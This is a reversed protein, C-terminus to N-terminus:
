DWENKVTRRYVDSERYMAGCELNWITAYTKFQQVVKNCDDITMKNESFLRDIERSSQNMAIDSFPRSIAAKLTHYEELLPKVECERLCSFDKNKEKLKRFERFVAQYSTEESTTCKRCQDVGICYCGDPLEFVLPYIQKLRLILDSKDMATSRRAYVTYAYLLRNLKHLEVM